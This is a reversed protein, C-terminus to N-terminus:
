CGSISPPGRPPGQLACCVCAALAAAYPTPAPPTADGAPRPVRLVLTAPLPPSQDSARRLDDEASVTVPVPVQGEGTLVLAPDDPLHISVPGSGAGDVPHAHLLPQLCQLLVFAVVVLLRGVDMRLVRTSKM